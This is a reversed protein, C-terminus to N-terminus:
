KSLTIAGRAFAIAFLAASVCGGVAVVYETHVNFTLHLSILGLGFIAAVFNIIVSQGRDKYAEVCFACGFAAALIGCATILAQTGGGDSDNGILGLLIFVGGFVILRWPKHVLAEM